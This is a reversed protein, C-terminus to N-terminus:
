RLALHMRHYQLVTRAVNIASDAAQQTACGYGGADCGVYFLGRLPAKVSPKGRGCQGVVQALGICEGGQGSLVHDRFLSSIEHTHFHEKKEIHQPVEPWIKAVTDDIKNWWLELDKREIDPSCFTLTTFCQKGPPALSPDCVAPVVAFIMIEEPVQTQQRLCRDLNLYLDDSCSFYMPYELVPKSLFYRAGIGGLGVVLDKVYNVYAKDFHEEGVLKLVTPQIGVNSIVIPARFAGASTDVGRVQGDEVIIREVRTKLRVEGGNRKVAEACVEAFRGYGGKPYSMVSRTLMDGLLKVGEAGDALEMPLGLALNMLVAMVSYFPKPVSYRSVFDDFSLGGAELEEIQEPTTLVAEMLFRGLEESEEPKLDLWSAVVSVDPLRGGPWLFPKYEGSSPARYFLCGCPDPRVLELEAEMGLAKLVADFPTDLQPVGCIPFLEYTFGRRSLSMAKGGPRDNKDILLTKVGDKALLAACPAGGPGAGVVIADYTTDKTTM